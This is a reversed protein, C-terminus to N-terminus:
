AEIEGSSVLVFDQLLEPTSRSMEDGHSCRGLAYLYMSPSLRRDWLLYSVRPVDRFGALEELGASYLSEPSVLEKREELLARWITPEEASLYAFIVCYLAGTKKERYFEGPHFRLKPAKRNRSLSDFARQDYKNLPM